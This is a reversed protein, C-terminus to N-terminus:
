FNFFSITLSILSIIIATISLWKQFGTTNKWLGVEAAEHATMVVNCKTCKLLCSLEGIKQSHFYDRVVVWKHKCDFRNMSINVSQSAINKLM